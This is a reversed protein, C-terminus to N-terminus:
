EPPTEVTEKVFEVTMWPSWEATQKGDVYVKERVRYQLMPPAYYEPNGQEDAMKIPQLGKKLHEMTFRPVFQRIEIPNAM